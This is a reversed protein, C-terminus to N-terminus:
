VEYSLCYTNLHEKMKNMLQNEFNSENGNDIDISETLNLQDGSIRGKATYIFINGADSIPQLFASLKRSYVEPNMKKPCSVKIELEVSFINKKDISSLSISPALKKLIFNRVNRLKSSVEKSNERGVHDSIKDRVVIKSVDNLAIQNTNLIPVYSYKEESNLLKNIFDQFRVITMSKPLNTVLYDGKLLFYYHNICYKEHVQDQVDHLDTYKLNLQNAFDIPIAKVSKKSSIRMIMGFIYDNSLVTYYSLVDEDSNDTNPHVKIIRSEIRSDELKSKLSQYISSQADTVRQTSTKFFRLQIKDAM